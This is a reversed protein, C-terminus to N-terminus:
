NGNPIALFGTLMLPFNGMGVWGMGGGVAHESAGQFALLWLAGVGPGRFHFQLFGLNGNM